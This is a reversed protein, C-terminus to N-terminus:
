LNVIALREFRGFGFACIFNFTRRRRYKGRAFLALQLDHGVGQYGDPRSPNRSNHQCHSVRSRGRFPFKAMSTWSLTLPFRPLVSHPRCHSFFITRGHDALKRQRSISGGRRRGDYRSIWCRSSFNFACIACAHSRTGVNYPFTWFTQRGALSALRVRIPDSWGCVSRTAVSEVSRELSISAPVVVFRPYYSGCRLRQAVKDM